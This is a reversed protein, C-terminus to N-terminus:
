DSIVPSQQIYTKKEICDLMFRAIRNRSVHWTIGPDGVRGARVTGSRIRNLQLNTRVITWDLGSQKVVNCMAIGDALRAPDILQLMRITLKDLVGPTDGDMFVGAGTLCILRKTQQEKMAAIIHKISTEQVTPSSRRHGLTCIVADTNQIVEFVAEPNEADGPIITVSPNDAYESLRAPKRVLAQATHLRALLEQLVFRGTGGSGGFLAIRM